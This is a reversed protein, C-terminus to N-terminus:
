KVLLMKKTQSVGGSQLRYFYVGSALSAANFNFTYSGTNYAERNILSAVERGLVDYIKLSVLSTKPITFRIQTSPNFPNPYNQGLEFSTASSVTQSAPNMITGVRVNSGDSLSSIKGNTGIARVTYAVTTSWRGSSITNTVDVFFTGTVPTSNLKQSGCFVDYGAIFPETNAAWEIRPRAGIQTANAVIVDQPKSPANTTVSSAGFYFRVNYTNNNGTGLIEFGVDPRSRPNGWQSYVTNYTPTFAEWQNGQNYAVFNQAGRGAFMFSYWNNQQAIPDPLNTLINEKRARGSLPNTSNEYDHLPNSINRVFVPYWSGFVTTDSAWPNPVWMSTNWNFTGEASIKKSNGWLSGEQFWTVHLGKSITGLSDYFNIKQRNEIVYGDLTSPIPLFYASGQTAYDQVSQIITQNITTLGIWGLEHREMANMILQSGGMLGDIGLTPHGFGFLYHGYEHSRLGVAQLSTSISKFDTTIGSDPFGYLLVTKGDNTQFNPVNYYGLQAFGGWNELTKFVYIMDNRTPSTAGNLDSAMNRYVVYIMDVNGDPAPISNYTNNGGMTWNDYLAFNVNGDISALADRNAHGFTQNNQVYWDRSHPLVVVQPYIDGVFQFQSNSMDRMYHSLSGPTFNAPATGFADISNNAAPFNPTTASLPWNANSPDFNDDPFRVFVFLARLTGSTPAYLGGTQPSAPSLRLQQGFMPSSAACEDVYHANPFNPSGSVQAYLHTSLMVMCTLLFLFRKSFCNALRSLIATHTRTTM